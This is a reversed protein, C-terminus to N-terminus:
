VDIQNYKYPDLTAIWETKIDNPHYAGAMIKQADISVVQFYVEYVRNNFTYFRKIEKVDKPDTTYREIYPTYRETYPSYQHEIPATQLVTGNLVILNAIENTPKM